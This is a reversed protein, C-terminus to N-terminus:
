TRCISFHHGMTFRGHRVPEVWWADIGAFFRPHAALHAYLRESVREQTLIGAKVGVLHELRAYPLKV